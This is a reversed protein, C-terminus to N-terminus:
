LRAPHGEVVALCGPGGGGHLVQAPIAAHIVHRALAALEAHHLGAHLLAAVLAVEAQRDAGPRVSVAVWAPASMFVLVRAMRVLWAPLRGRGSSRMSSFRARWAPSDASSAAYWRWRRAATWSTTRRCFAAPMSM